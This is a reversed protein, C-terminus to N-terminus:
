QFGRAVIAAVGGDPKRFSTSSGSTGQRHVTPGQNPNNAQHISQQNITSKTNKTLFLNVLGVM